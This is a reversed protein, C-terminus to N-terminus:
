NIKKAVELIGLAVHRRVSYNRAVLWFLRIRLHRSTILHGERDFSAGSPLRDALQIALDYMDKDCLYYIMNMLTAVDAESDVIQALDLAESVNNIKFLAWDVYDKNGRNLLKDVRYRWSRCDLIIAEFEPSFNKKIELLLTSIARVRREGMQSDVYGLFEEIDRALFWNAGFAAMSPGLLKELMDNSVELLMPIYEPGEKCLKNMIPEYIKCHLNRKDQAWSDGIYVLSNLFTAIAYQGAMTDGHAMLDDFFRILDDASSRSVKIKLGNIYDWDDLDELPWSIAMNARMMARFLWKNAWLDYLKAGNAGSWRFAGELWLHSKDASQLGNNMLNYAARTCGDEMFNIVLCTRCIPGVVVWMQRCSAALNAGNRGLYAGITWLIDNPLQEM